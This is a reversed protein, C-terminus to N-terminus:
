KEQQMKLLSFRFVIVVNRKKNYTFLTFFLCFFFIMDSVNM